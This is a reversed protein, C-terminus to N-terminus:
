IYIQCISNVKKLDAAVSQSIIVMNIRACILYREIRTKTNSYKIIRQHNALNEVPNLSYDEHAHIKQFRQQGKIQHRLRIEFRM